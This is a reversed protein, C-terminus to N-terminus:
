LGLVAKHSSTGRSRTAAATSRPRACTSPSRHSRAPRAPHESMADLLRMQTIELAKLEIEILAAKERLHVLGAPDDDGQEALTKARRLLHKSM